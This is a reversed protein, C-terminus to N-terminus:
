ASGMGDGGTLSSHGQKRAGPLLLLIGHRRSHLPSSHNCCPASHHHLTRSSSVPSPSAGLPSTSLTFLSLNNRNRFRCSAQSRGRRRQHCRREWRERTWPKHRSRSAAIASCLPLALPALRPQRHSLALLRRGARTIALLSGAALRRRSTRLAAALSVALAELDLSPRRCPRESDSTQQVLTEQRTSTMVTGWNRHRRKTSCHSSRQETSTATASALAFNYSPFPLSPLSPFYLFRVLGENKGALISAERSQEVSVLGRRHGRSRGRKGGQRPRIDSGLRTGVEQKAGGMKGRATALGNATAGAIAAPKEAGHGVM